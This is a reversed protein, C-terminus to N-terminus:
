ALRGEALWAAACLRAETESLVWGDVAVMRGDAFDGACQERVLGERALPCESALAAGILPREAVLAALRDLDGPAHGSAVMARGIRRAAEDDPVTDLLAFFGPRNRPVFRCAALAAGYAVIAIGAIGAAGIAVRRTIKSM